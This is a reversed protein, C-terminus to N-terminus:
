GNGVEQKGLAERAIQQVMGLRLGASRRGDGSEAEIRELAERYRAITAAAESDHAALLSPLANVAEVIFAANASASHGDCSQLEYAIAERYYDRETGDENYPEVYGALPKCDEDVIAGVVPADEKEGCQEWAWPLPTAREMAERLRVLDPRTDTSNDQEVMKRSWCYWNRVIVVFDACRERGVAVSAM